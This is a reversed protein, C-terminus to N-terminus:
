EFEKDLNLKRKESHTGHFISFIKELMDNDIIKEKSM